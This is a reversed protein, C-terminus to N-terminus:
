GALCEHFTMALQRITLGDGDQLKVEGSSPMGNVRVKGGSCPEIYYGDARRQIKAALGPAFWGDTYLDCDRGKGIKFNAKKIQYNRRMGQVGNLQLFAERQRELRDLADNLLGVDLLTTKDVNKHAIVEEEAEEMAADKAAPAGTAHLSSSAKAVLRLQHKLVVIEDGYSLYQTHVRQGNVFVGNTSKADEVVLANGQRRIRAHLESVGSNDIVIDCGAGRGITTVKDQLAVEYELEGDFYVQVFAM